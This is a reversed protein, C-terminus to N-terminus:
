HCFLYGKRGGSEGFELEVDFGVRVGEVAHVLVDEADQGVAVALEDDVDRALEFDAVGTGDEGEVDGM